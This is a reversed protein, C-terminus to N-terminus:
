VWDALVELVCDAWATEADRDPWSHYDGHGDIRIPNADAVDIAQMVLGERDEVKPDIGIALIHTEDTRALRDCEVNSADDGLRLLTVSKRVISERLLIALLNVEDDLIPAPPAIFVISLADATLWAELKRVILVIAALVFIIRQVPSREDKIRSRVLSADLRVVFARRRRLFQNEDRSYYFLEDRVYRIAFLDPGRGPELYALQSHLLSEISGRTGISAYGGVPYVNEDTVQTPVDRRGARPRVPQRPLQSDLRDVLRVIQRHALYQGAPAIAMRHDLATLDDAALLEASRRCAAALEDACAALSAPPGDIISEGAMELVREPSEDLLNRVVAPAIDFGTTQWSRHLRGVVFAIGKIRDAVAYQRIADTAREITADTTLKGLVADDYRRATSWRPEIPKALRDIGSLLFGIDAIVHVPPIPDGTSVLELTWNLIATVHDPTLAVARTMALSALVFSKAEEPIRLKEVKV